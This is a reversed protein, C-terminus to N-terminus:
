RQAYERACAALRAVGGWEDFKRRATEDIRGTTMFPNASDRTGPFVLVLARSVTWGRGVFRGRGRIEDYNEPPSTKGLLKAALAVTGEGLRDVPGLDGVVAYVPTTSGPTMAVVLDGIKANRQTFGSAGNSPNRPLVIAPVELADVYNTIDCVNQVNPRHLTTASVLFGDVPACPKGNKFPIIDPSIKTQRLKEAPWGAAFAEQTLIRRNRMGESGLGGCADSMANCLNNIATNQGWFDSVSYSRRTGDTNVNLAEAFFLASNTQDAWVATTGGHADADRQLFAQSMKCEQASTFTACLIFFTFLLLTKIM